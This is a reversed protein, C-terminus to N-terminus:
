APKKREALNRLHFYYLSFAILTLAFLVYWFIDAWDRMFSFPVTIRGDLAFELFTIVGAALLSSVFGAVPKKAKLGTLIMMFASLLYFFLQEQHVFGWMMYSDRRISIMIVEILGLLFLTDRLYVRNHGSRRMRIILCAATGAFLIAEVLAVNLHRGYEGAVTLWVPSECAAGFDMGVASWELLRGEAALLLLPFALADLTESPEHLIRCVAWVIGAAGAIAGFLSFGGDTWWFFSLISHTRGIYFDLAGLWYILRAGILGGMAGLGSILLGNSLSTHLRSLLIFATACMLVSAAIGVSYLNM